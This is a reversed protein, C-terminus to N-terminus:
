KRHISAASKKKLRNGKLAGGDSLSTGRVALDMDEWAWGWM